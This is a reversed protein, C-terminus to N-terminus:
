RSCKVFTKMSSGVLDNLVMRTLGNGYRLGRAGFRIARGCVFRFDGFASLSTSQFFSCTPVELSSRVRLIRSSPSTHTVSRALSASSFAFALSLSPVELGSDM